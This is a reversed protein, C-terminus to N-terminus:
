LEALERPFDTIAEAGTETVLVTESFGIGGLDPIFVVPVLHFTMGPQFPAKNGRNFSMGNREIWTVFDIGIGYGTRHRYYDSLGAKEIRRRNNLDVDEIPEGPKMEEITRNLCDIMTTAVSRQRDSAKGCVATRMLGAAYRRENGGQEVYILDGEEVVDGQWLQHALATRRGVLVYTPTRMFGSGATVRAALLAAAIDNDRVGPKVAAWAASQGAESYKAARRMYAVEAPSKIMRVREVLGSCDAVTANPLQRTTDEYVKVLLWPVTKEFGIRGAEVKLEALLEVLGTAPDEHDQYGIGVTDYATGQTNIAELHRTYVVPSGDGTLVMVQFFSHFGTTEYGSLYYLNEPASLVLADYGEATMIDRVKARRQDFETTEFPLKKLEQYM